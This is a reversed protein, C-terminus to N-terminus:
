YQPPLLSLDTTWLSPTEYRKRILAITDRVSQDTLLLETIVVVSHHITTHNMGGLYQGIAVLGVYKPRRDVQDYRLLYSVIERALILGTIGRPNTLFHSREFKGGFVELAADLIVDRTVGHLIFPGYEHVWAENRALGYSPAITVRLPKKAKTKARPPDRSPVLPPSPVIQPANRALKARYIALELGEAM